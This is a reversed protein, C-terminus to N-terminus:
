LGELLDEAGKKVFFTDEILVIDMQTTNLMDLAVNYYNVIPEGGPNYSTNLLVPHGTIKEFEKITVHLFDNQDANVTQLRCTGDLHTISPLVDRYDDKTFCIVSMYPIETVNTFYRSADEESCVPAFPRYWERHKVKHNLIDRMDKNLPNCLISRNGLARPGIEYRGRFVGMVKSDAIFKALHSATQDASVEKHPYQEKLKEIDEKDYAEEGLYPSYYRNYGNFGVKSLKHYLHLAAGSALGCDTPNPIFHYQDFMGNKQIDYNTVGNLACGGVMCFNKSVGKHKEILEMVVQTWAAQVVKVLDQSDQHDPGPLKMEVNLPEATNVKNDLGLFLKIRQKTTKSTEKKETVIHYKRLDEIDRLGISNITHTNGYHKIGEVKKKKLVKYERVYKLAQELWEERVGGYAALGMTKGSSTGSIDANIGVIFGLNNYSQGMRLDVSELYSLSGDKETKFFITYGDNGTGDFSLILSEEFPSTYFALSAHSLHHNINEICNGHIGGEKLLTKLNEFEEERGQNQVAIADFSSGWKEHIRDIFLRLEEIDVYQYGSMQKGADLSLAHLKYRKQRYYREVEWVEKIEGDQVLSFNTDHGLSIGLVKM